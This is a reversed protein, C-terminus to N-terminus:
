KLIIKDRNGKILYYIIVTLILAMIFGIPIHWRINKPRSLIKCIDRLVPPYRSFMKEHSYETSYRYYESFSPYTQNYNITYNVLQGYYLLRFLTYSTLWLLITLGSMSLIIWLEKKYGFNQIKDANEVVIRLFLLSATLTAFLISAHSILQNTFMTLM